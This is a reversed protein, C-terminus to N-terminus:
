SAALLELAEKETAAVLAMDLLAVLRLAEKVPDQVGVFVLKGDRDALDAYSVMLIGIGSSSIYTVKSMDFLLAMPKASLCEEVSEQFFEVSHLDIEGVARVVKCGPAIDDVTVELDM